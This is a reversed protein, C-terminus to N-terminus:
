DTRGAKNLESSCITTLGTGVCQMCHNYTFSTSGSRNEELLVGLGYCGECRLELPMCGRRIFRTSYSADEERAFRNKWADLFPEKM